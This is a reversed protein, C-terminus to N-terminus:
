RVRTRMEREADRKKIDDRRDAVKKGKGLGILVKAIGNKFYIELPVLALKQVQVQSELREIEKRHLLLKRSRTPSYDVYSLYAYPPIYVNFLFAERKDIRVLGEEISSKGERLSKVEHGFLSIGAELKELIAFKMHAKRNRAVVQIADEKKEKSPM